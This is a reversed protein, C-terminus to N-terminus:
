ITTGNHSPFSFVQRAEKTDKRKVICFHFGYKMKSHLMLPSYNTDKLWDELGHVEITTFSDYEEPNTTLYIISVNDDQGFGFLEPYKLTTDVWFYISDDNVHMLCIQYIGVTNNKIKFELMAVKKKVGSITTPV